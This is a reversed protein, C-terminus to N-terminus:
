GGQQAFHNELWTLLAAFEKTMAIDSQKLVTPGGGNEVTIAYTMADAAGGARDENPAAGAAAVLRTLEAATDASLTATDVARPPRRLDSAAALGGHTKLTM